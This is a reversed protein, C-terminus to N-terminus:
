NRANGAEKNTGFFRPGSWRAGTIARAIASLSRYSKRRWVFGNDTVDVIHTVGNWERILRTNAVLATVELKADSKSLKELRRKTSVPLGCQIRSQLEFEIIRRMLQASISRPAAHDFLDSWVAILGNRDLQMIDKLDNAM